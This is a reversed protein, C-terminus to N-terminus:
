GVEVLFATSPSVSRRCTLLGLLSGCGVELLVVPFPSMSRERTLCGLTSEYGEVSGSPQAGLRALALLRPADGDVRGGPM